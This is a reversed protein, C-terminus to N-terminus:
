AKPEQFLVSQPGEEYQPLPFVSEELLRCIRELADRQRAAHEEMKLHHRRTEHFMREELTLPPLKPDATM